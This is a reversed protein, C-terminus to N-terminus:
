VYAASLAQLGFLLLALCGQMPRKCALLFSWQAPHGAHVVQITPRLVQVALERKVSLANAHAASKIVHLTAPQPQCSGPAMARCYFSLLYDDDPM